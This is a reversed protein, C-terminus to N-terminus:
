KYDHGNSYLNRTNSTTTVTQPKASKHRCKVFKDAWFDSRTETALHFASLKVGSNLPNLIIEIYM